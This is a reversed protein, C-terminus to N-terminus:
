LRSLVRPRGILPLLGAMDPGDEEGTLAQRIATEDAQATWRHWTGCDWPEPPLTARASRLMEADPDEVQDITGSVVDWWHAADGVTALGGRVAEWFAADAGQPLRDRVAAFDLTAVLRRNAALLADLRPAAARIVDFRGVLDAASAPAAEPMGALVPALAAAEIGDQRVRKLTPLKADDSPLHMLTWRAPDTGLAAVIDLHIATAAVQEADRLLATVGADIDDVAGALAPTASGDARVLVPDSHATLKVAQMGLVRDRWRREGDALLFRWHPRKGGAEASARQAATLKLMGRDYTAAEGRRHRTRAKWALEEDTEFCPYLRGTVRLREAAVAHAAAREPGRLASDHDLGLWALEAADGEGGLVFRGGARRVVLWTALARRAHGLHLPGAPAPFRAIM